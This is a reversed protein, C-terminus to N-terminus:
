EDDMGLTKRAADVRRRVAQPATGGYSTRSRVSAEVGLVDFIRPGISPDLARLDELPLEWLRVGREDALRVARGTVHHAERFPM